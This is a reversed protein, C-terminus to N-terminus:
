AEGLASIIQGRHYIEHEVIHWLIWGVTVTRDPGEEGPPPEVTREAMLDDPVLGDVFGKTHARAAELAEVLRPISKMIRHGQTIVEPLPLGEAVFEVWFRETAAIHFLLEAVTRGNPGARRPLDEPTLEAVIEMLEARSEDAFPYLIEWEM